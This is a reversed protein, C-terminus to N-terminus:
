KNIKKDTEIMENAIYEYHFLSGFSRVALLHLRPGRGGAGLERRRRAVGRQGSDIVGEGGGRRM